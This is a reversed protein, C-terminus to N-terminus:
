CCDAVCEDLADFNRDFTAPLQLVRAFDSFMTELPEWTECAFECVNHDHKAFWQSDEILCEQRLLV